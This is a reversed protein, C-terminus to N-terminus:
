HGFHSPLKRSTYMPKSTNAKATVALKIGKCVNDVSMVLNCKGLRLKGGRNVSVNALTLYNALGAALESEQAKKLEALKSAVISTARAVNATAKIYVTCPM